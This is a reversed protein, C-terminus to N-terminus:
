DANGEKKIRKIRRREQLLFAIVMVLGAAGWTLPYIAAIARITHWKATFSYLLVLRLGCICIINILMPTLGNGRGKMVSSFDEQIQYLFYLPMTIGAIISCNEIVVPDTNFLWFVSHGFILLVSSIAVSVVTGMVLTIALGKGVRKDQGAGVNQATFTVLAQGLAVLPYWIFLEVKFYVVFASVTDVGFGNIVTQVLINSLTMIMSQLGAPIGISLVKGIVKRDITREKLTLAVGPELKMLYRLTLLAALTQSAFTAIAAGAIGWAFVYIFVFDAVVNTIAGFIQFRMAAMSDGIARVIGSGLNYLVLSFLCLFYIRLYVVAMSFVEEPTNMLRLLAPAFIEGLGILVLSGIAGFAVVSQILQHLRNKDGSGFAQGAIVSSGVSIGTFLGVLLTVLLDSSGVAASAEKGIFRGVFILDVTSYLQQILSSGLLPLAFLLIKKWPSGKTLDRSLSKQNM